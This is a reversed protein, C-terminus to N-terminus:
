RQVNNKGLWQSNKWMVMLTATVVTLGRLVIPLALSRVLSREEHGTCLQATPSPMLRYLTM